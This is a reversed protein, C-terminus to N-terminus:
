GWGRIASPGGHHGIRSARPLGGHRAPPSARADLRGVGDPRHRRGAAKERGPCAAVGDALARLAADRPAGRSRKAVNRCGGTHVYVPTSDQNLGLELFGSWARAPSSGCVTPLYTVRGVAAREVAAVSAGWTVGRVGQRGPASSLGTTM